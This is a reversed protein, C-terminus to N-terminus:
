SVPSPASPLVTRAFGVERSPVAHILPLVSVARVRLPPGASRGAPRPTKVHCGRRRSVSLECHSSRARHGPSPRTSATLTLIVEREPTSACGSRSRSAARRLTRSQRFNTVAVSSTVMSQRPAAAPADRLSACSAQRSLAGEQALLGWSAARQGHGRGPSGPRGACSRGRLATSPDGTVPPRQSGAPCRPPARSFCGEPRRRSGASRTTPGLSRGQGPRRHHETERGPRCLRGAVAPDGLRRAGPRQPVQQCSSRTHDM